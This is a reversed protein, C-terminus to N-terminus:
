AIWGGGLVLDGKYIVCAQGPAIAKEPKTLVVKAASNHYPYLKAYVASHTSRVKVEVDLPEVLINGPGLWNLNYIIFTKKFLMSEPGVYVINQKADIKIVYLAESASIGIRRRQGITFNIIGQHEGLVYGDIHVIKGPRKADPRLKEVINHYSGDVVFCIDQSDPKNAIHLSHRNAHYRTEDKTMNGLPFHLYQLQSKTTAFLFYSQDKKNDVAKHLEVGNASDIRRVYHGTVLADAQLDKAFNLLDHFKVSQNCQVCPLPTEGNIYSEVFNDIVSEKFRDQYNLVYHPIQLQNAIMKADYIDQGACCAGKRNITADHNYLQMTIGIVNYGNEKLLAAVTSSDVGGSMAVVVKAQEKSVKLNLM